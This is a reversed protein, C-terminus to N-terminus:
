SSCRCAQQFPKNNWQSNRNEDGSPNVQSMYPIEYQSYATRNNENEHQSCNRRIPAFWRFWHFIRITITIGCPFSSANHVRICPFDTVHAIQMISPFQWGPKDDRIIEGLNINVGTQFQM